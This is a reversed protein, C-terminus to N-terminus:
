YFFLSTFFPTGECDYCIEDPTELIKAVTFDCIKVCGDEIEFWFFDFESKRNSSVLINDLKIDRHVTNNSHLYEVANAVQYFLWKASIEIKQIESM